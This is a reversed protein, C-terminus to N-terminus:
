QKTCVLLTGSYPRAGCHSIWVNRQELASERAYVHESQLSDIKTEGLVECTEFYSFTADQGASRSM